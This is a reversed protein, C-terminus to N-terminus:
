TYYSPDAMDFVIWSGTGTNSADSRTTFRDVYKTGLQQRYGSVLVGVGNLTYNTDAM